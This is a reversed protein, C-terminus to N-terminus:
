PTQRAASSFTRSGSKPMGSKGSPRVMPIISDMGIIRTPPQNIQRAQFRGGTWAHAVGFGQFGTQRALDSQRPRHRDGVIDGAAQMIGLAAIVGRARSQPFAAVEDGRGQDALHEAFQDAQPRDLGPVPQARGFPEAQDLDAGAVSGQHAVGQAGGAQDGAEEFGAVQDQDLGASRQPVKLGLGQGAGVQRRAPHAVQRPDLGVGRDDQDGVLNQVTQGCALEDAGIAAPGLAADADCVVIVQDEAQGRNRAPEFFGGEVDLGALHELNRFLLRDKAAVQGPQQLGGRAGGQEDVVAAGPGLGAVGELGQAAVLLDIRQVAGALGVQGLPGVKRAHQFGGDAGAGIDGTAQGLALEQSPQPDFRASFPQLRSPGVGGGHDVALQM